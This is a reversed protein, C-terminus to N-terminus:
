RYKAFGTLLSSGAGLFSGFLSSRGSARDAKASFELGRAREEGDWMATQANLEGQGATDTMIKMVTPADTSAGGGSAAAVAQQRSMALEAQKRQAFAERQAKAREENAQMEKQQAAFDASQKAAAGQAITGVAGVFSGLLGLASAGGAAAGGAAAAGGGAAAAPLLGLLMGM